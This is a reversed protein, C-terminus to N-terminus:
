RKLIDPNQAIATESKQRWSVLDIATEETTCDYYIGCNCDKSLEM